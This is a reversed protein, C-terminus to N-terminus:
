WNQKMINRMRELTQTTCKLRKLNQNWGVKRLWTDDHSKVKKAQDKTRDDCGWQKDCTRPKFFGAAALTVVHWTTMHQVDFFCLGCSGFDWLWLTMDLINQELQFRRKRWGLFKWSRLSWRILARNLSERDRLIDTITQLAMRKPVVIESAFHFKAIHWIILGYHSWFSHSKGQKWEFPFLNCIESLPACRATPKPKSRSCISRLVPLFECYFFHLFFRAFIRFVSDFVHLFRFVSFIKLFPFLMFIQSQSSCQFAKGGSDLERNWNEPCGPQISLLFCLFRKSDRCEALFGLSKQKSALRQWTWRMDQKMMWLRSQRTVLCSHSRWQFRKRQGSLNDM